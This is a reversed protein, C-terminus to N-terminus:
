DLQTLVEAFLESLLLHRNIKKGAQRGEWLRKGAINFLEIKIKGPNQIQYNIQINNNTPNPTMELITM